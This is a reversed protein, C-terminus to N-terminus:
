ATREFACRNAAKAECSGNALTESNDIRTDTALTNDCQAAPTPEDASIAQKGHQGHAM